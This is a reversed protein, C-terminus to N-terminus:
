AQFANCEILYTSLVTQPVLSVAMNEKLTQSLLITGVPSESSRLLKGQSNTMFVTQQRGSM